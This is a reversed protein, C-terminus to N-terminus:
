PLLVQDIIFVVGNQAAIPGGVVNAPTGTTSPIDAATQVGSLVHYLLVAEVQDATLTQLTADIAAFAANTPAFVTFPGDGQLTAVLNANTLLQVLTSFEPAASLAIDVVTAPDSMQAHAPIVVSNIIPESWKTQSVLAAGAVVGGTKLLKRRGQNQAKAIAPNSENESSSAEKKSKNKPDLM